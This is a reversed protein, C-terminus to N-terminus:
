KDDLAPSILDGLDGIVLSGDEYLAYRKENLTGSVHGVNLHLEVDAYDAYSFLAKISSQTCHAAHIHFIKIDTKLAEIISMITSGSAIAGDIILCRKFTKDPKRLGLGVVIGSKYPMRKAHPRVSRDEPLCDFAEAIIRGEREPGLCLTSSDQALAQMQKGGAAYIDKVAGYFAINDSKTVTDANAIRGMTQIASQIHPQTTSNITVTTTVGADPDFTDNMDHLTNLVNEPFETLTSFPKEYRTEFEKVIEEMDEPVDNRFITTVQSLSSATASRNQGMKTSFTM